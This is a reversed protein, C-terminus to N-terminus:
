GMLRIIGFGDAGELASLWMVRAAMEDLVWTSSTASQRRVKEGARCSSSAAGEEHRTAVDERAEGCVVRRVGGEQTRRAHIMFCALEERNECGQCGALKGTRLRPEGGAESGQCDLDSERLRSPWLSRYRFSRVRAENRQTLRFRGEGVTSRCLDTPLRRGQFDERPREHLNVRASHESKKPMAAVAIRGGKRLARRGERLVIPIGPMDFPELTFSM